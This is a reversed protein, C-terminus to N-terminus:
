ARVEEAAPEAGAPGEAPGASAPSEAPGAGPPGAAAAPAAAQQRAAWRVARVINEYGTCRCIQGSLTERIEAPSPGPNHDLLWRATMMMGPTCFGCQLGHCETFGQQVPDLEGDKELGEVTRIQRGDAMAAFVTCSKVPTGDLLVVCAGCNSTDCGWHSGTLGLEDRLFHILLLRPEVDASNHAGNVTVTIQM